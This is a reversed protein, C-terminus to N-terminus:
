NRVTKGSETHDVAAFEVCDPCRARRLRKGCWARIETASISVGDRTECRALLLVAGDRDESTVQARVVQPHAELVAEVEEPYFDEDGRSIRGALRGLVVLNRDSCVTGVDGTCFFGDHLKLPEITVDRPTTGLYGLGMRDPARVMIEGTDGIAGKSGDARRVEVEVGGLPRGVTHGRVWGQDYIRVNTVAGGLETSGYGQIVLAGFAEEAAALLDASLHGGGIGVVRLNSWDLMSLDPLKMMLRLISPTVVMTGAGTLSTMRLARRPLLAATAVLPVGLALAHVFQTYGSITALPIFVARPAGVVAHVIDRVGESRDGDRGYSAMGRIKSDLSAWLSAESHVVWRPADSTGSTRFALFPWLNPDDDDPLRVDSLRRHIDLGTRGIVAGTSSDLCVGTGVSSSLSGSSADYVVVDPSLDRLADLAGPATPSGVMAAPKALCSFALVAVLTAGPSTTAVAGLARRDSQGAALLEALEAAHRVLMAVPVQGDDGIAV